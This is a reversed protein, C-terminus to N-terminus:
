KAPLHGVLQAVGALNLSTLGKLFQMKTQMWPIMYHVAIATVKLICATNLTMMYQSPFLIVIFNQIYHM